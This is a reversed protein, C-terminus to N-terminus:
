PERLTRSLRATWGAWAPGLRALGPAPSGGACACPRRARRTATGAARESRKSRYGTSAVRRRRWSRRTAMGELLGLWRRRDADDRVIARRELGRRTLHYWVLLRACRHKATLSFASGLVQGRMKASPPPPMGLSLNVIPRVTPITRLSSLTNSPYSLLLAYCQFHQPRPHSEWGMWWGSSVAQQCSVVNVAPRKENQPGRLTEEGHGSPHLLPNPSHM